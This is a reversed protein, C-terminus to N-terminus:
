RMGKMLYGATLADLTGGAIERVSWGVRLPNFPGDVPSCDASSGHGSRVAKMSEKYREQEGTIKTLSSAIARQLKRGTDICLHLEM